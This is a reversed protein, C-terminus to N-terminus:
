AHKDRRTKERAEALTYCSGAVIRNNEDTVLRAPIDWYYAKGDEHFKVIKGM